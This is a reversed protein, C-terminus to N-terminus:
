AAGRHGLRVRYSIQTMLRLHAHVVQPKDEESARLAADALDALTDYGHNRAQKALRLCRSAVEDLDSTAQADQIRDMAEALGIVFGDVDKQQEVEDGISSYIPALTDDAM